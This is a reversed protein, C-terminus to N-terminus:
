DRGGLSFSLGLQVNLRTAMPLIGIPSNAPAKAWELPTYDSGLYFCVGAKPVFELIWGITNFANLFSYNVGFAFWPTPNINYSLTLEQRYGSWSKRGSYLLGVSMTNKLFPMEAGIYFSPTTSGLISGIDDTEDLVLLQMFDERLDDMVGSMLGQDFSLEELGSWQMSRNSMYAKIADDSYFIKGLDTVAASFHVGNIFGDFDLKYEAGLDVSFGFGALGLQTMDFDYSMGGEENINLAFGKIATHLKGNTQITWSDPTTTLSIEDINAGIYGAPAIARVKAGVRLGPVLDSLDRSYGIAAEALAMANVKMYGINYVGDAAAGKKLFTFLDRPVDVDGNIRVGLDFTWYGRGWKWGFNIINLYAALDLNPNNPLKKDFQSFPVNQNLFTYLTGDIPYLFTPIDINSYIGLGLNGIVPMQFYDVNPAFAPNLKNRNLSNDLFYSGKLTQAGLVMPALLMIAIIVFLNRKM